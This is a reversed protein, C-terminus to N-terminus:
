KGKASGKGKAASAPKAERPKRAPANDPVGWEECARRFAATVMSTTWEKNSPSPAEMENLMAAVQAFSLSDTGRNRPNWIEELIAAGTEGHWFSGHNTERTANEFATKLANLQFAM